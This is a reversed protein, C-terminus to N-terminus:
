VQKKPPRGRRKVPQAQREQNIQSVVENARDQIQRLLANRALKNRIASQITTANATKNTRKKPEINDWINQM